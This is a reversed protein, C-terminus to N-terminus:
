KRRTAVPATRSWRLFSRPSLRSTLRPQAGRGITMRVFRRVAAASTTAVGSTTDTDKPNRLISRVVSRSWTPPLGNEDKHNPQPPPYRDLDSNLKDCLEGLGLSHLCYDEFIMLIIPARVPDLILRHKRKGERAKNPNPHPHAELTYGYPPRGGTHWGQRVSEVM